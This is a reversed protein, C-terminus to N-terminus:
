IILRKKVLGTTLRMHPWRVQKTKAIQMLTPTISNNIIYLGWLTSAMFLIFAIIFAQPTPIGRRRKTKKAKFM